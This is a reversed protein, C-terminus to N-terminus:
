TSEPNCEITIEAGPMLPVVDLLRSIWSPEVRSPTGGGIFISTVPESVSREVDAILASMYEEALHDLGAYANFDCYWCRHSCFPIHIYLGFEHMVDRPRPLSELVVSMEGGCAARPHVRRATGRGRRSAEDEGQGEEAERAAEA